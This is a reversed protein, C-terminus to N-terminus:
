SRIKAQSFPSQIIIKCDSKKLSKDIAGEKFKDTYVIKAPLTSKEWRKREDAVERKDYNYSKGSRMQCSFTLHTCSGAFEFFFSFAIRSTLSM